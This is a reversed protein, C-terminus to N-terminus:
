PAYDGFDGEYVAHVQHHFAQLFSNLSLMIYLALGDHAPKKDFCMCNDSLDIDVGHFM